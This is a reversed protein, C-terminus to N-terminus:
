LNEIFYQVFLPAWVASYCEIKPHIDDQMYFSYRNYDSHFIDLPKVNWKSCIKAFDGNIYNEYAGEYQWGKRVAGTYFVVKVTPCKQKAQAIIHEIAGSVTSTDFGSTQTTSVSGMPKGKSFDNTSLQVVLFDPKQSFDLKNFRQVYSESENDVLTTGSVAEKVFPNGSIKNIIEGFAVGGSAEGRTISSGLYFIKTNALPHANLKTYGDVASTKVTFSSIEANCAFENVGINTMEIYNQGLVTHILRNLDQADTTEPAELWQSNNQNFNVDSMTQKAAGDVSLYYAGDEFIFSYSHNETFFSSTPFSWGYNVYVTNLRVGIYVMKSNKNVGIYVRGFESFPNAVLLQAGTASGTLLKGTINVEWKAGAGVPLVVNEKLGLIANTMKLTSSSTSASGSAVSGSFVGNEIIKYEILAEEDDDDDDDKKGAEDLLQQLWKVWDAETGDYSPNEEKWQEFVSKGSASGSLQLDTKVGDVYIYGDQVTIVPGSPSTEGCGAGIALSGAMILAIPLTLWKKKM